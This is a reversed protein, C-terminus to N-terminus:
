DNKLSAVQIDYHSAHHVCQGNEILLLQPSQHVVEYAKAIADSLPRYRLLDLYFPIIEDELIDYQSEFQDLVMSSIGCRTSHKFIIIKKTKSMQNIEELQEMQELQNWPVNTSIRNKSAKNRKKFLGM